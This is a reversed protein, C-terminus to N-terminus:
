IANLAFLPGTTRAVVLERSPFLTLYRDPVTDPVTKVQGILQEFAQM